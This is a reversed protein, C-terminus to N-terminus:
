TRIRRCEVEEERTWASGSARAESGSGSFSPLLSALSAREIVARVVYRIRCMDRALSSPVWAPVVVAFGFSHRGESLMGGRHVTLRRRVVERSVTTSSLPAWARVSVTEEGVFDICIRHVAVAKAVRVVVQGSIRSGNGGRGDAAPDLEIRIAPASSHIPM